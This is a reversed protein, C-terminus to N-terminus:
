TLLEMDRDRPGMIDHAAGDGLSYINREVGIEFENERM